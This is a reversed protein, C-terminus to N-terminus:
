EFGIIKNSYKVICHKSVYVRYAGDTTASADKNVFGVTSPPPLNAYFYIYKIYVITLLFELFLLTLWLPRVRTISILDTHGVTATTTPLSKLLIPSTAM